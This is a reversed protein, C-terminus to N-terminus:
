NLPEGERRGRQLEEIAELIRRWEASGEVDGNAMLEDARQAACIPFEDVLGGAQQGIRQGMVKLVRRFHDGKVRDHSLQPEKRGPVDDSPRVLHHSLDDFDVIQRIRIEAVRRVPRSLM